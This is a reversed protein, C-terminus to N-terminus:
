PYKIWQIIALVTGVVTFIGLIINLWLIRASLKTSTNNFERITKEMDRTCAVWVAMKQGEHNISGPMSGNSLLKDLLEEKTKGNRDSVM